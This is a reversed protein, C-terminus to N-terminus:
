ATRREKYIGDSLGGEASGHAGGLGACSNVRLKDFPQDRLDGLLDWRQCIAPLEFLQELCDSLNEHIDVGIFGKGGLILCQHFLKEKLFQERRFYANQPLSERVIEVCEIEEQM